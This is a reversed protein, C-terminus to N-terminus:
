RGFSLAHQPLQLGPRCRQLPQQQMDAGSVQTAGHPLCRPQGDRGPSESGWGHSHSPFVQPIGPLVTWVHGVDGTDGTGVARLSVCVSSARCGLVPGCRNVSIVSLNCSQACPSSPARPCCCLVFEWGWLDGQGWLEGKWLDLDWKGAESHGNDM